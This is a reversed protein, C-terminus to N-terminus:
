KGIKWFDIKTQKNAGPVRWVPLILDWPQTGCLEYNPLHIPRRRGGMWLVWGQLCPRGRHGWKHLTCM